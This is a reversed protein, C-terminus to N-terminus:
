PAQPAAVVPGEGRARKEHVRALAARAAQGRSDAQASWRKLIEECATRVPAEPDYVAWHRFLATADADGIQDLVRILNLRGAAPATHLATEIQPLARRGFGALRQMAPPVLADNRRTVVHIEGGIDKYSRDECGGAALLPAALLALWLLRRPRQRVLGPAPHAGPRRRVGRM